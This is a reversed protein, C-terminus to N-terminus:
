GFIFGMGDQSSNEEDKIKNYIEDQKGKSLPELTGEGIAEVNKFIDESGEILVIYFSNYGYNAGDKYTITQRGVVDDALLKDITGRNEKALKYLKLM